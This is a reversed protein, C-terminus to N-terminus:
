DYSYRSAPQYTEIKYRHADLIRYAQNLAMHFSPWGVQAERRDLDSLQLRLWPGVADATEPGYDRLLPILHPVADASLTGLYDIDLSEGRQYRAINQRAIFADPNLLNLTVLFGIGAVFALTAFQRTRNILLLLFFGALVIALWIMFVHPYVRLHTFGYALEYLQMRGYASGLIIITMATMMGSGMLFIVRQAPSERRTFMDLGLILSLTILAVALLEFFGRRAYESYTLNQSQLFAEGGFLAAFQIAVFVLFLANVSFLVVSAEVFGLKGRLSLTIADGSHTPKVGEAEDSHPLAPRSAQALAYALLGMMGWSLTMTLLTHGILDPINFSQMVNNVAQGFILDASSFLVTFVCLFPFAILLGVGVRRLPRHIGSDRARLEHIARRLLPISMVLAFLGAEILAEAYGFINLQLHPAASLRNALFVLLAITALVDMTRLMPSARVASMTAFFLIPAILWLNWITFPTDEVLALAVLATLVVATLIPVSIGLPFGYFLLDGALGLLLGAGAIWVPYKLHLLNLQQRKQDLPFAQAVAM